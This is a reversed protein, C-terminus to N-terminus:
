PQPALPAAHHSVSEGAWLRGPDHSLAEHGVSGMVMLKMLVAMVM